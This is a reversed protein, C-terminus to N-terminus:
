QMLVIKDLFKLREFRSNKLTKNMKKMELMFRHTKESGIRERMGWRREDGGLVRLLLSNTEKEKPGIRL